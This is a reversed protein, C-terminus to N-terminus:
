VKQSLFTSLFLAKTNGKKVTNAQVFAKGPKRRDIVIARWKLWPYKPNDNNVVSYGDFMKKASDVDGTSKYIQYSSAM